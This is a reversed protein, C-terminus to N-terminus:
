HYMNKEEMVMKWLIVLNKMHVLLFKTEDSIFVSRVITKTPMNYITWNSGDYELLGENNGFYLIGRKDITVSWNQVSGGYENKNFNTIM